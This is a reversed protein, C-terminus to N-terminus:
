NKTPNKWINPKIMEGNEDSRHEWGEIIKINVNHFTQFLKDSEIGM